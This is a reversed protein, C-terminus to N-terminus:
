SKQAAVVAAQGPTPSVRILTVLAALAVVASLLALLVGATGAEFREDLVAVGIATAVAPDIATQTALGADLGGDRYATQLLLLGAVPLVLAAAGAVVLPVGGHGTDVLRLTLRVLGSTAGACIGAAAARSVARGVAPLSRGAAVVLVVVVVALLVTIVVVGPPPPRDGGHRPAFLLVGALGLVLVAAAVWEAPRIRRRELRADLPLALVVAAVGLPQVLAVSAFGLAVVHIGAGVGMAAVGGWWRPRRVLARFFARGGGTAGPDSRLVLAARATEGRQLAAATAYCFASGVALLM